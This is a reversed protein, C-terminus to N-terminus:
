GAGELLAHAEELSGAFHFPRARLDGGYVRALASYGARILASAGVVVRRGENPRAAGRAFVDGAVRMFDGPVRGARTLDIVLHVTHEASAIFKDAQKIAAYLDNWTWGPAFQLLIVSPTNWTVSINM